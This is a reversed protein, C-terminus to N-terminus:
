TRVPGAWGLGFPRRMPLSRLWEEFMGDMAPFRRPLDTGRERRSMVSM